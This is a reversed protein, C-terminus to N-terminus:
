TIYDTKNGKRMAYGLLMDQNPEFFPTPYDTREYSFAGWDKNLSVSAEYSVAKTKIFNQKYLNWRRRLQKNSRRSIFQRSSQYQEARQLAELGKSKAHLLDLSSCKEGTAINLLNSSACRFPNIMDEELLRKMIKVLSREKLELIPQKNITMMCTFWHNQRSLCQLSPQSLEFTNREQPASPPYHRRVTSNPRMATPRNWPWARGFQMSNVM